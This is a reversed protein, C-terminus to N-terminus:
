GYRSINRIRYFDNDIQDYLKQRQADDLLEIGALMLSRIMNQRGLSSLQNLSNLVKKYEVQEQNRSNNVKARKARMRCKASCFKADSRASEFLGQCMPCFQLEKM